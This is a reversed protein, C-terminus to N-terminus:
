DPSILAFHLAAPASYGIGVENMVYDDALDRYTQRRTDFPGLTLDNGRNANIDALPAPGGVVAGSIDLGVAQVWHYPDEIGGVEAQWRLGWPNVGLFWGTARDLAARARGLGARAALELVVAGAENQRVSAWQAYGARGFATATRVVYIWADGGAKLLRCAPRSIDPRAPDDGRRLVGCLEAAAIASMEYSDAAVLWNEDGNSTARRLSALAGVAYSRKGTARWLAAQAVAVDDRWSDQQYCCNRWVAHLAQAKALWAEAQRVLRGRRDGTARLAANALAAATIAAVDSGGTEQTLVYSPRRSRRSDSSGDDVTPDRFGANHDAATHGVQAVFVKQAHAKRLWRVGIGAADIIQAAQTPQNAAALELMLTAYGTTVTFKLQDGADMWGGEVDIREGRHRGNAIPSRRDHLHSPDHYSSPEDGDANSDFITLTTSVVGRYLHDGVEIVTSETAGVEVRYVGPDTIASLDALAAYTWPRPPGPLSQLQGTDITDGSNVDVVQYTAGALPSGSAVVAPPVVGPEVFVPVRITLAPLAEAQGTGTLTATVVVLMAALATTRRVWGRM